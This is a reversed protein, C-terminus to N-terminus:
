ALPGGFTIQPQQTSLVKTLLDNYNQRAYAAPVPAEEHENLLMLGRWVILDHYDTPIEPVDENAVLRQVTKFYEGSLVYVDDPIPSLMLANDGPRVTWYAPDQLLQEGRLHTQRFEDWPVYELERERGKGESQKYCFLPAGTIWRALDNISLSAATYAQTGAITPKSWDRRMWKWNDRLLQILRWAQATHSVIKHLHGVQSTVATPQTGSITGSERAVDQCLELFTAM